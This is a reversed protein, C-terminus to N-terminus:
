GGRKGHRRRGRLRENERFEQIAELAHPMDYEKLWEDESEDYGKWRVLFEAGRTRRERLIREIEVEEGTEMQVPPPPVQRRGLITDERVPILCSVHFVDHIAWGDPLALRYATDSIKQTVVAFPGFRKFDLKRNPRDSCLDTRELFVHDGVMYDPAEDVWANYFHKMRAAALELLDKLEEQM